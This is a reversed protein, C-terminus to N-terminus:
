GKRAKGRGAGADPQRRREDPRQPVLIKFDDGDLAAPATGAHGHITTDPHPGVAAAAGGVRRAARDGLLAKKRRVVFEYNYAADVYNPDRTLVDLYLRAVEDLREIPQTENTLAATAQRFGANAVLMLYRAGGGDDSTEGGSFRALLEYQHLWYHSEAQRTRVDDRWRAPFLQRSRGAAQYEEAPAAYRMTLFARRTTAQRAQIQGGTWLGAGIGIVVVAGAARLLFAM